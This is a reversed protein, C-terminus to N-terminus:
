KKTLLIKKYKIIIWDWKSVWKVSYDDWNITLIDAEKIDSVKKTTFYYDKWFAEIELGDEVSLPALYGKYTNWTTSYSWKWDVYAMRKVEATDKFYKYM